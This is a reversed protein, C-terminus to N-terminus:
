LTSSKLSKIYNEINGCLVNFETQNDPEIQSSLLSKFYIYEEWMDPWQRVTGFATLHVLQAMHELLGGLNINRNMFDTMLVSGETDFISSNKFSVKYDRLISRYYYQYSQIDQYYEGANKRTLGNDDYINGLTDIIGDISLKKIHSDVIRKEMLKTLNYLFLQPTNTPCAGMAIHWYDESQNLGEALLREYVASSYASIFMFFFRKCPGIKYDGIEKELEKLLKILEQDDHTKEYLEYRDKLKKHRNIFLIMENNVQIERFLKVYSDKSPVNVAPNHIGDYRSWLEKILKRLDNIESKLSIHYFIDDLLEYGYEHNDLLYDLLILDFEKNKLAEKASDLDEVFEILVKCESLDEVATGFKRARVNEENTFHLHKLLLERIIRTKCNWPYGYRDKDNEYDDKPEMGEQAKDDVLLIRWKREKIKEVINDDENEFEEKIMKKIVGESHFIFPSVGKAHAGSLYAKTILRANLDAYEKAVQLDYLHKEYNRYISEVAKYFIDQYKETRVVNGKTNKYQVDFLPALYNWISSDMIQFSRPVMAPLCDNGYLSDIFIDSLTIHIIPFKPGKASVGEGKLEDQAFSYAQDETSAQGKLLDKASHIVLNIQYYGSGIDNTKNEIEEITKEDDKHFHNSDNLLVSLLSDAINFNDNKFFFAFISDDNKQSEQKRVMLKYTIKDDMIM